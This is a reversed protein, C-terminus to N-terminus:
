NVYGLARLQERLKPDGEDAPPKAGQPSFVLMEIAFRGQPRLTARFREDRISVPGLDVEHTQIKRLTRPEPSEIEHAGGPPLELRATGAVHASLRYDGDPMPFDIELPKSRPSAVLWSQRWDGAQFWGSGEDLSAPDESGSLRPLGDF